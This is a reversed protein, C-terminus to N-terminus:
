MIGHVRRDRGRVGFIGGPDRARLCTDGGTAKEKRSGGEERPLEEQRMRRVPRCCLLDPINLGEEPILVKSVWWLVFVRPSTKM